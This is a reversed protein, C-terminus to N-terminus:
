SMTPSGCLHSTITRLSWCMVNEPVLPFADPYLQLRSSDRFSNVGPLLASTHYDLLRLAVSALDLDRQRLRAPILPRKEECASCVNAM